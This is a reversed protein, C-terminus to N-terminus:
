FAEPAQENKTIIKSSIKATHLQVKSKTSQSQQNLSLFPMWGTVSDAEFCKSIATITLPRSLTRIDHPYLTKAHGM